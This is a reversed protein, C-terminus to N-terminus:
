PLCNVKLFSLQGTGLLYKVLPVKEFFVIPWQKMQLSSLKVLYQRMQLDSFVIKGSDTLNFRILTPQYSLSLGLVDSKM